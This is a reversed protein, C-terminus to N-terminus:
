RMIKFFDNNRIILIKNIRDIRKSIRDIAQSNQRSSKEVGGLREDKKDLVSNVTPSEKEMQEILFAFSGNSSQKKTAM